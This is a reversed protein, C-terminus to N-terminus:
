ILEQKYKELLLKFVEEDVYHRMPSGCEYCIVRYGDQVYFGGDYMSEEEHREILVKKHDCQKKENM